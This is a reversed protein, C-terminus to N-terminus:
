WDKSAPPEAQLLARSTVDETVEVERQVPYYGCGSVFVRYTGRVVRIEAVGNEDTIARYPHMVVSMNPLPEQNASDVAEIRVTHDAPAVTRVRFTAEAGEHPYGAAHPPVQVRWQRFDDTEPAALDLEAYHLGESGAWREDTLEGVGVREGAHDLIEFPRGTMDCSSSCKVGVKMHFRQGTEIASPVEWIVVRTAHATVTFSFPTAQGTQPDEEGEGPEELPVALWAYTGPEDPARLTIRPTENIEDKFETFPIRDVLAGTHDRIELPWGRLDQAPSCVAKVRLTMEAGADVEEPSVLVECSSIALTM